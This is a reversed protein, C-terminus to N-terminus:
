WWMWIMSSIAGLGIAVGYPITVKHGPETKSYVASVKILVPPYCYGVVRAMALWLRGDLALYVLAMIGGWLAMWLFTNVVFVPGQLAGVLGLLKVDGAGMGRLVFPIFLFLMGLGWGQLATILAHGGAIAQLMFAALLGIIILLNPIRRWRLDYYIAISVCIILLYKLLMNM